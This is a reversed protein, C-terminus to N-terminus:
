PPLRSIPGAGHVANQSFVNLVHKGVGREVLTWGLREYFPTMDPRAGLYACNFGLAFCYQTARKVLATGIGCRRASQEVWVAAVWPTLQPREPLDSGIASATGLFTDGDHAILAFPIPTATMNECLRSSIFNLSVGQTQWWARWIRDAVTEFFETRERLDSIAFLSPM